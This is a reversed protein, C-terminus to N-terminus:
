RPCVSIASRRCCCRPLGSEARSLAQWIQAPAVRDRAAALGADIAARVRKREVLEKLFGGALLLTWALLGLLAAIVPVLLSNSIVYLVRTLAGIM